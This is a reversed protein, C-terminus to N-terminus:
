NIIHSIHQLLNDQYNQLTYKERTQEKVQRSIQRLEESTLNLLKDIYASINELTVEEMQFGYQEIDICCAKSAIPILGGNAMVNLLAPSGGESVSPFLAVACTDMIEQFDQSDIKVFGHDIINNRNKILPSYYNWFRRETKNAGCIHLIIDERKLFIDLCYGLGKSILGGSGFWLFNKKAESFKKKDININYYDFYFANIPYCQLNPIIDLYTKKCFDNGLTIVADPQTFQMPNIDHNIRGSEPLFLGTKKYFDSVVKGATKFYFFHSTGTSYTIKKIKETGSTYFSKELPLGQGYVIEYKSFDIKMESDFDIIDVNYGLKNFIEAATRCETLNTHFHNIKKTFASTLYSILISKEYHTNFINKLIFDKKKIKVLKYGNKELFNHIYDKFSKM